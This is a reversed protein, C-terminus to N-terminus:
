YGGGRGGYMDKDRVARRALFPETVTSGNYSVPTDPGPFEYAGTEGADIHLMAYLTRTARDSDISVSVHSNTGERVRTYGIVEGPAGNSEAHVVLWGPESSEVSRIVVRGNRIGQAGVTISPAGMMQAMVAAPLLVAAGIAFVVLTRRAQMHM